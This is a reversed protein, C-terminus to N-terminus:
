EDVMDQVHSPSQAAISLDQYTKIRRSGDEIAEAPTCCVWYQNGHAIAETLGCDPLSSLTKHGDTKMM